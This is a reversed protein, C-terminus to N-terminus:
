EAPRISVVRITRGKRPFHRGRVEVMLSQGDPRTIRTKFANGTPDQLEQQVLERSNSDVFELVQRGLADEMRMGLLNLLTSNADLIQGDEHVFIGEFPAEALVHAREDSEKAVITAQEKVTKAMQLDSALTNRDFRLKISEIVIEKMRWSTFIMMVSFLLMLIAMAIAIEDGLFILRLSFLLTAPLATLLYVSWVAALYPVAGAAIGVIVFGTFAIHPISNGAFLFLSVSGWIAGFLVAVAMIRKRWTQAQLPSPRVKNFQQVLIVRAITAIALITLWTIIRIHDIVEWLIWGLLSGAILTSLAALKNQGYLLELQKLEIELEIPSKSLNGSTAAGSAPFKTM